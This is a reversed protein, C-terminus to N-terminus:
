VESWRMIVSDATASGASGNQVASPTRSFRPAPAPQLVGGHEVFTARAVNHPDRPADTMSLVPAVCSDGDGFLAIWASRPRNGFREQLKDRLRPWDMPNDLTFDADNIEMRKLFEARFQPEIPAVALWEGDACRYTRYYPAAGDLRNAEREDLWRGSAHYGYLMAMLSATGDTIACDIVQGQGSSRAVNLAALLGVALYLAGGGFDGVLNLPPAPREAGGIAHLAGSIAIYNLDHGARLAYPGQQGWGTMRGYILRRNRPMLREPGLGLREMVGPRFGEILMDARDTLAECSARGAESKLDLPLHTRGRSTVDSPRPASRGLRDIMIVDAGMDSLLMGCFPAPGLGALEVVRIGDLPGSM